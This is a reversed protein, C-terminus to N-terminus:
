PTVNGTVMLLSAPSPTWGPPTVATIHATGSSSPTFQATGSMNGGTITVPTTVSAVTPSDNTLSVSLPSGGALQGIDGTPSGDNNLPIVFVTLTSPGSTTTTTFSPANAPGGRILVGSPTLDVNGTGSGFGASTATYTVTTGAGGAAAQLYFSANNSGAPITITISVAGAGTATSSLLLHSSNSTLTVPLGGAPAAAGIIVNGQTELFQGISANTVSLTATTVM